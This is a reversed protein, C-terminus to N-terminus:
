GSNEIWNLIAKKYRNGRDIYNEFLDFSACAPSLLVTDGERARSMAADVASVIDGCEVIEVVEDNFAEALKRNDVGMAILTKVRDKALQKLTTYDNGKDVGGAIWIVNSEFSELAKEAADVNTAKSDNVVTIGSWTAVEELRHPDNEFSKLGGTIEEISLGITLCAEVACRTNIANHGGRLFANEFSLTTQGLQVENPHCSDPDILRMRANSPRGSHLEDFVQSNVIILVDDKNQNETIRWKSKAYSMYNDYRDLHDPTVNLIIGVEPKFSSIGDLQFSSLEVVLWDFDDQAVTRAMSHGVNGVKAARVGANHILHYCLNTTTTKGNSGTIAIIRSTCYRYAWEIESIVEIGNDLLDKVIKSEDPIGPSKVVVDANVLKEFSHQGEEFDVKYSVLEEKRDKRISGSDSVFVDLKKTAGLIAAGVGSEGGGLVVLRM